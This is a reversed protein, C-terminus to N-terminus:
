SNNLKTSRNSKKAVSMKNKVLKSQGELDLEAMEECFKTLNQGEMIYPDFYDQPSYKLILERGAMSLPVFKMDWKPYARKKIASCEILHLKKHRQDNHIKNFLDSVAARGGELVQIYYDANFCLIGTINSKVNNKLSKQKIDQIVDTTPDVTESIYILRQLHM